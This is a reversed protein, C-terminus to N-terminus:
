ALIDDLTNQVMISLSTKELYPTAIINDSSYEVLLETLIYVEAYDFKFKVEFPLWYLERNCWLIRNKVDIYFIWKNKSNYYILEGDKKNYVNTKVVSLDCLIANVWILIPNPNDMIMDIQLNRIISKM